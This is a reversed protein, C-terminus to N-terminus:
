VESWRRRAAPHETRRQQAIDYLRAKRVVEALDGKDVVAWLETGALNQIEFILGDKKPVNVALTEESKDM